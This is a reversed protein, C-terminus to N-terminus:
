SDQTWDLATIFSNNKNCNALIKYNNEADLIYINNDHNGVALLKGNPSYQM